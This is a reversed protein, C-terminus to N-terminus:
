RIASLHPAAASAALASFIPRKRTVSPMSLPILWLPNGGPFLKAAERRRPHEPNRRPVSIFGIRTPSAEGFPVSQCSLRNDPWSAGARQQPGARNPRRRPPPAIPWRFLGPLGGRGGQHASVAGASGRPPAAAIPKPEAIDLQRGDRARGVSGYEGPDFQRHQGRQPSIEQGARGGPGRPKADM